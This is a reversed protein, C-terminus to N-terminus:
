PTYWPGEDHIWDIWEHSFGGSGCAVRVPGGGIGYGMDGPPDPNEAFVEADFDM